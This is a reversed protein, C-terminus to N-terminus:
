PSLVMYGGQAGPQGRRSVPQTATNRAGGIGRVAAIIHSTVCESRYSHLKPDSTQIIVTLTGAM